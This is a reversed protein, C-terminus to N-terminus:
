KGKGMYALLLQAPQSGLQPHDQQLEVTLRYHGPKADEAGALLLVDYSRSADVLGVGELQTREVDSSTVGPVLGDDGVVIRNQLDPSNRFLAVQTISTEEVRLLRVRASLQARIIEDSRKIGTPADPTVVRIGVLLTSSANETPPPLEFELNVVEGARDLSIPRVLPAENRVLADEKSVPQVPQPGQEGQGCAAVGAVALLTLARLLNSVCTRKKM